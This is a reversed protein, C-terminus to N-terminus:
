LLCLWKMLAISSHRRRFRNKLRQSLDSCEREELMLVNDHEMANDQDRTENKDHFAHLVIKSIEEGHRRIL